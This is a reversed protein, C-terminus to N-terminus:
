VYGEEKEMLKKLLERGRSLRMKVASVSIGLMFSIEDILYGELYHLLIVDKYKDPLRCVVGFVGQLSSNEETALHHVDDLSLHTRYKKKRQMDHCQNVTVKIFWAKEYEESEFERPKAMFRAFVDHVADEADHSSQLHSLALRYLLGSYRDYMKEFDSKGIQSLSM